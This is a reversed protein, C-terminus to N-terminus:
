VRMKSWKIPLKMKVVFAPWPLQRRQKDGSKFLYAQYWAMPNQPRGNKDYLRYEHLNPVVREITPLIHVEGPGTYEDIFAQTPWGNNNLLGMRVLTQAAHKYTVNVENKKRKKQMDVKTAAIKVGNIVVVGLALQLMYKHNSSLGEYQDMLPQDVVSQEM